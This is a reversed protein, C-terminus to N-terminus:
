AESGSMALVDRESSCMIRGCGRRPAASTAAGICRLRVRVPPVIRETGLRPPVTSEALWCDSVAENSMLLLLVVVDDAVLV